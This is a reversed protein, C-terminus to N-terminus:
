VATPDRRFRVWFLATLALAFVIWLFAHQRWFALWTVLATLAWRGIVKSYRIARSPSSWRGTTIQFALDSGFMVVMAFVFYLVMWSYLFFPTVHSHHFLYDVTLFGLSILTAIGTAFQGSFNM